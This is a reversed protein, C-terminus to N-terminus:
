MSFYQAEPEVWERMQRNKSLFLNDVKQPMSIAPDPDAGSAM